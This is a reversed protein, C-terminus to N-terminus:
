RFTLLFSLWTLVLSLRGFGEWRGGSTVHSRRRRQRLQGILRNRAHVQHDGNAHDDHHQAEQATAAGDLLVAAHQQQHSCVGSRAVGVHGRGGSKVGGQKKKM